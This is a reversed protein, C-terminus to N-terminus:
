RSFSSTAWSRVNTRHHATLLIHMALQACKPIVMNGGCRLREKDSSLQSNSLWTTIAPQNRLNWCMNASEHIQEASKLKFGQWCALAHAFSAKFYVYYPRWVSPAGKSPGSLQGFSPCIISSIEIFPFSGQFKLSLWSPSRRAFWRQARFDRVMESRLREQSIGAFEPHEKVAMLKAICLFWLRAHFQNTRDLFFSTSKLPRSGSM